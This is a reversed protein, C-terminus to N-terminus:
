KCYPCPIDQGENFIWMANENNELANQYQGKAAWTDDKYVFVRQDFELSIYFM